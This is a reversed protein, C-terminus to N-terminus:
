TLLSLSLTPFSEKSIHFSRVTLHFFFFSRFLTNAHMSFDPLICVSSIWTIGQPIGSPPSLHIPFPSPPLLISMKIVNAKKAKSGYSFCSFCFLDIWKANSLSKLMWGKWARQVIKRAEKLYHPQNVNESGKFRSSILDLSTWDREWCSLNTWRPALIATIPKKKAEQYGLQARRHRGQKWKTM